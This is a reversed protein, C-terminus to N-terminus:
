PCPSLDNRYECQALWAIALELASRQFPSKSAPLMSTWFALSNHDKLAELAMGRLTQRSFQLYTYYGQRTNDPLLKLVEAPNKEVYFAHTALLLEYLPLNGEFYQRQQQLTALSLTKDLITQRDSEPNTRELTRMSAFDLMALLLPSHTNKQPESASLDSLPSGSNSPIISIKNDIEQLLDADSFGRQEPTQSLLASYEDTLHLTDGALWYSRRKLGRASKTYRGRPYQQLYLDLAAQASVVRSPEAHWRETMEGYEDFAGVQVLRLLARAAMYASTERVWLTQASVLPQFVAVAGADDMQWFKAAGRLYQVYSRAAPSSTSRAASVLAAAMTESTCGEQVHTRADLLAVREAPTLLPDVQVAAVFEDDKSLTCPKSEEDTPTNAGYSAGQEPLDAIDEWTFLPPNGAKAQIGAPLTSPRLDAMLLLLNVRTDNGPSLMAMNSCSEYNHHAMRWIRSCGYDGSALAKRPAAAIAVVFFLCLLFRVTLTKPFTM